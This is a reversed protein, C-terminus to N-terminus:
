RTVETNWSMPVELDGEMCKTKCRSIFAETYSLFVSDLRTILKPIDELPLIDWVKLVQFYLSDKVVDNSCIIYLNKVKFQKLMQSFNDCILKTSRRKPRWGCSLRLLLNLVLKRMESSKLKEFSKKFNESFFVKWRANKFLLSDGNLVGDFQDLEQKIQLVTDSLEDDQEAEYFCKRDRAEQVVSKWAANSDSLATEKGVIWLSYRARTLAVNTRQLNSIFGLLGGSNTRVTTLIMIDEESGALDDVMNVKLSFGELNEYKMGVKEKIAVAQATYFTVIGVSLKQKSTSWAKFLKQVIKIVIAVEAMNKYSCTLSDMEENGCSVNIFSFPGFMPDPLFHRDYHTTRVNPADLVQSGYFVSNIVSSILPHMRYQMNLIHKPCGNLYLREFLSTGIGAKASVNSTVNETLQGQDGFLVIHKVGPLQLPIFSECEKLQAAEDIILLNLPEEIVSHLMYSTSATCFVLSVTKLCDRLDKVHHNFYKYETDAEIQVVGNDRFYVISGLSCSSLTKALKLVHAVVEKISTDAPACILTRYEMRLLIYLLVSLTKTKGTGPLGQILQVASSQNCKLKCLIDVIVKRQSENLQDSSITRILEEVGSCNRQCSYRRDQVSPNLIQKILTYNGDMQLSKWIRERTRLNMLFVVFLKKHLLLHVQNEKFAEVRLCTVADEDDYGISNGEIKAGWGKGLWRLDSLNEPKAETLVFVDGPLTKYPDKGNVGLRNRWYDVKVDYLDTGVQANTTLIQAYPASAINTDIRSSLQARTEELLPYVFSRFYGDVELFNEPIKEVQDKFLQEDLINDTSWSFVEDILSQKMTVEQKPESWECGM